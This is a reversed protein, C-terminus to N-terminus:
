PEQVADATEAAEAPPERLELLLRRYDDTRPPNLAIIQQVVQIAQDTKGRTLYHEGLVDLTQVAHGIDGQAAYHQALYQQVMESDPFAEALLTLAALAHEPSYALRDLLDKLENEALSEEGARLRLDVLVYRAKDDNPETRRIEEYITRAKDWEHLKIYADGLQQRLRAVSDSVVGARGALSLGEAYKDAANQIQGSAALANGVSEFETLAEPLHGSEVLMNILKSRRTVDDPGLALAQRYFAVAKPLDHRVAATEALTDYKAVAESVRGSALSIEAIQM